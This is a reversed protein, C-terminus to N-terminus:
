VLCDFLQLVYWTVGYWAVGCCLVVRPEIMCWRVRFASHWDRLGGMGTGKRAREWEKKKGNPRTLFSPLSHM